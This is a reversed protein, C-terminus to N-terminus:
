QLGNLAEVFGGEFKDANDRFLEFCTNFGDVCASVDWGGVDETVNELIRGCGGSFYILFLNCSVFLFVSFSIVCLIRNTTTVGDVEKRVNESM